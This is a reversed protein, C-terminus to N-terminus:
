LFYGVIVEMTPLLHNEKFVKKRPNNIPQGIIEKKLLEFKANSNSAEDQLSSLGEVIEHFGLGSKIIPYRQSSLINDLIKTSDQSGLQKDKKKQNVDVEMRKYQKEKELYLKRM